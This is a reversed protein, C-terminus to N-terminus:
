VAQQFIPRMFKARDLDPFNRAEIAAFFQLEPDIESKQLHLHFAPGVTMPRVIALRIEDIVLPAGDPGGLSAFVVFEGGLLAALQLLFANL